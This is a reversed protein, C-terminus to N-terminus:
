PQYVPRVNTLASGDGAFAPATVTGSLYTQTHTGGTGIRIIGTEGDVGRHGIYINNDGTVHDAGANFGLGINFSATTRSLASYGIATNSSGAANARLAWGGVAVNQSGTTTYRLASPGFATNFQGTSLFRLAGTGVATNNQTDTATFEPGQPGAPGQPGTRGPTGIRGPLGADGPEGQPGVAGITLYFVAIESDRRSLTLLYTGAGLAGPLTATVSTASSDTVPLETLRLSVSPTTTSEGPNESDTATAVLNLGNLVLTPPDASVQAHVSTILPPNAAVPPAAVTLALGVVAIMRTTAWTRM